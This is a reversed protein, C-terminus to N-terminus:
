SALRDLPLLNERPPESSRRSLRERRAPRVQLAARLEDTTVSSTGAKGVVVGAATNAIRAAVEHDGTSGLGLAFVAAATDGAGTVDAVDRATAPLLMPAREPLLLCMGREGLTILASRLELRGLFFVALQEFTGDDIADRGIAQAAEFQNPTITTAGAYRRYDRGKPDVVIPTGREGCCRIISRCTEPTLVGKAYDSLIVVDCSALSAVSSLIAAASEGSLENRPDRDVRVIQQGQAVIRTKVTTQAGPPTILSACDVDAGVLIERLRSGDADDGALGVLSTRAGLQRLNLAVNAAGGAREFTRNVEVVPVPAEPSIRRVPGSIYRDLMVDGVVVVHLNSFREVVDILHDMAPFM